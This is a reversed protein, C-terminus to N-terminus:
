MSFDASYQQTESSIQCGCWHCRIGVVFLRLLLPLRLREAVGDAAVAVAAVYHFAVVSALAVSTAAM